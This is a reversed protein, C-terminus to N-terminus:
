RRPLLPPPPADATPNWHDSGGLINEITYNAADADTLQKSWPAREPPNAGPGTSSYEAYRATKENAPNRWNDWGQPKIHDGMECNIYTVSAYPRWPRGLDAM